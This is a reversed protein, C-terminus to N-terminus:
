SVHTVEEIVEMWRKRYNNLGFEDKATAQGAQGVRKITDLDLSEIKEMIRYYDSDIFFGNEGDKIFKDEDWMNTTLVCLGSHMAEARTRPFSSYRCASIYVNYESLVKRYDNFSKIQMDKQLWPIGSKHLAELLEINNMYPYNGANIIIPKKETYQCQTFEDKMGHWIWTGNKMGYVKWENMEKECCHVVKYDKHAQAIKFPDYIPNMYGSMYPEPGGHCIIIIPLRGEFHELYIPATEGGSHIIVATYDSMDTSLTDRFTVNPPLPRQQDSWDRTFFHFEVDHLANCLDYQHPTHTTFSLIKM